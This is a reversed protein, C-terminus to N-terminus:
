IEEYLPPCPIRVRLRKLPMENGILGSVTRKDETNSLINPNSGLSRGTPGENVQVVVLNSSALAERPTRAAM